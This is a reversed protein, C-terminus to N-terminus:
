GLGDRGCCGDSGAGPVEGPVAACSRPTRAPAVAPMTRGLVAQRGRVLASVGGMGSGAAVVWSEGHVYRDVAPTSLGLERRAAQVLGQRFRLFHRSGPMCSLRASLGTSVTLRRRWDRVGGHIPIPRTTIVGRASSGGAAGSRGGGCVGPACNGFRACRNPQQSHPPRRASRRTILWNVPRRPRDSAPPQWPHLDAVTSNTRDPDPTMSDDWTADPRPARSAAVPWALL